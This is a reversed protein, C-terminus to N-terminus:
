KGPLHEITPTVYFDVAETGLTNSRPLVRFAAFDISRNLFVEADNVVGLVGANLFYTGPHLLCRFRWSIEMVAGSEVVPLADHSRSTAAGGLPHGTITKIMM